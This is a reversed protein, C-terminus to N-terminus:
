KSGGYHELMWTELILQAAVSDISNNKLARYGGDAYLKARADVSTLREDIYHVPLQYRNVLREGFRKAAHTITQASGDMNLPLGVVLVTPQWQKVLEDITQWDPIGDTAPLVNLPTASRTVTQGVAAGIRKMGFDFGLAVLPTVDMTNTM